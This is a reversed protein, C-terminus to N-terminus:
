SGKDTADFEAEPLGARGGRDLLRQHLGSLIRELEPGRANPLSQLFRLFYFSLSTVEEELLSIAKEAGLAGAWM